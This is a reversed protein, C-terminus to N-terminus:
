PSNALAQPSVGLIPSAEKMDADLQEVSRRFASQEEPPTDGFLFDKTEFVAKMGGTAIAGGTAVGDLLRDEKTVESGDRTLGPGGFAAGIIEGASAGQTGARAGEIGAQISGMLNQAAEPDVELGPEEDPTPAGEQTAQPARNPNANQSSPESNELIQRLLVPDM